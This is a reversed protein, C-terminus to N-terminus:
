AERKRLLYERAAKVLESEDIGHWGGPLQRFTAAPMQQQLQQAWVRMEAVTHESAVVLAPNTVASFREGRASPLFTLEHVITRTNALAEESPPPMQSLVEEPVGVVVEDFWRHDALKRPLDPQPTTTRSSAVCHVLVIPPGSGERTWAIETGDASKVTESKM